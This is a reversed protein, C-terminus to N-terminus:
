VDVHTVYLIVCFFHSISGALVFVHWVAHAFKVKLMFFVTGVTYLIGGLALWFLAGRPLARIVGGLDIVVIWGMLIYLLLTLLRLRDIWIAKFVIGAAALGWVIGFITWGKAGNMVVLTFPTYTGAILLYIACYDFVVFLRKARKNRIGHYLTSSVYLIVLTSGYISFSIVHWPSGYLAAFVVLLVLAAIALLGGMGHLVANALEEGTTQARAEGLTESFSAKHSMVPRRNLLLAHL